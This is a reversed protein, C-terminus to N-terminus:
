AARDKTKGLTVLKQEWDMMKGKADAVLKEKAKIDNRKRKISQQLQEDVTKYVTRWKSYEDEVLKLAGQSQKVEEM